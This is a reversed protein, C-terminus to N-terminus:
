LPFVRLSHLSMVMKIGKMGMKLRGTMGRFHGQM